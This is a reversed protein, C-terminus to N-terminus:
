EERMDGDDLGAEDLYGKTSCTSVLGDARLRAKEPNFEELRVTYRLDSM